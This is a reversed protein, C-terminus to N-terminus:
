LASRVARRARDKFDRWRALQCRQVVEARLRAARVAKFRVRPQDLAGIPVEVPCRKEAPGVVLARNEFDGGAARQRRKVAEAGLAAARVALGSAPSIWPM